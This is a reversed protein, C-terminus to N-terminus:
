RCTIEFCLLNYKVFFLKFRFDTNGLTLDCILYGQVLMPWSKVLDTEDFTSFIFFHVFYYRPLMNRRATIDAKLKQNQKLKRRECYCKWCNIMKRLLFKRCQMSLFRSIKTYNYYYILQNSKDKRGITIESLILWLLRVSIKERRAVGWGCWGFEERCSILLLPPLSYKNLKCCYCRRKHM